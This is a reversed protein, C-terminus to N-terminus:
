LATGAMASVQPLGIKQTAMKLRDIIPNGTGGTLPQPQYMETLMKFYDDKTFPMQKPKKQQTM